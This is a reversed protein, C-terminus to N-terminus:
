RGVEGEMQLQSRLEESLLLQAGSVVLTEGPEARRPVFWGGAVPNATPVERRSFRGAAVQQYCWAKGQWWVVAAEPILVGPRAQGHPLFALVYMGPVLGPEAPVGYLYGIGQIRTDARPALSVLRATVRPGDAAQVAAAAPATPAAGSGAPITIQVLREKQEMLRQFEPSANLAWGAVVPGWQQRVSGELLPLAAAAARAETEDLRLTGEASQVSKLSANRNDEYLTKVREYQQQSFGMSARVKELRYQAAVYNNRWDVLDQVALVVGNVRLEDSHSLAQLPATRIAARSLAQPDLTVTPRGQESSVRTPPQIPKEREAEANLESRRALYGLVLGIGAAVLVMFILLRKLTKM